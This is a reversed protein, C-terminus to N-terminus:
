VLATFVSKYIIIYPLTSTHVYTHTHTHTHTHTPTYAYSHTHTSIVYYDLVRWSLYM